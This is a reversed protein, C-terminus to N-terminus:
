FVSQIFDFFENNNRIEVFDAIKVANTHLTKHQARSIIRLNGYRNDFTFYNNHHIVMGFANGGNIKVVYQHLKTSFIKGTYWYNRGDKQTWRVRNITQIDKKDIITLYHRNPLNQLELLFFCADNIATQKNVLHPSAALLKSLDIEYVDAKPNRHAHIKDMKHFWGMQSSYIIVKHTFNM